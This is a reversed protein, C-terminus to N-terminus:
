YGVVAQLRRPSRQRMGDRRGIVRAAPWVTHIKAMRTAASRNQDQAIQEWGVCARLRSPHIVVPMVGSITSAMAMTGPASSPVSDIVVGFGAAGGRDKKSQGEEESRGGGDGDNWRRKNERVTWEKPDRM